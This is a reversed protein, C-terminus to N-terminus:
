AEVFSTAKWSFNNQDPFHKRIFSLSFSLLCVACFGRGQTAESTVDIARCFTEANRDCQNEGEYFYTRSFIITKIQDIFSLFM